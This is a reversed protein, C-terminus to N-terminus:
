PSCTAGTCHTLVTSCPVDGALKIASMSIPNVSPTINLTSGPPELQYLSNGFIYGTDTFDLTGALTSANTLTMGNLAATLTLGVYININLGSLITALTLGYAGDGESDIAGSCSTTGGAPSPCTDTTPVIGGWGSIISFTPFTVPGSVTPCVNTTTSGKTTLTKLVASPYTVTLSSASNTSLSCIDFQTNLTSGSKTVVMRLVFDITGDTLAGTLDPADITGPTTVRAIWTGTMDVCTGCDGDNNGTCGTPCCGDGSVCATITTNSCGSTATCVDTTCTKGDNCNQVTGTTCTGTQCTKPTWALGSCATGCDTGDAKTPNTCVGTSTNCTGATHCQDLATCVVPNSGTCTGSVCTDTQTCANGDNCSTGNSVNSHTCVANCSAASGTISDTTCANGDDACSTPCAGAQGAAIKSDCTESGSVCGDGCVSTKCDNDNCPTCGAPCCGDSTMSCTTIGTHACTATCTGANQLADTTCGNSDNCSTPCVGTGSTIATDCTEGTELIANGCCPTTTCCNAITTHTCVSNTCADTTCANSDNCDTASTCCNAITTHTCVSNTCADTTCANSDNCQTASTCCNTIAAVVCTAQCATGTLTSTHCVDSPTCSTPCAGTQGAAIATDCTEGTGVNGDGCTVTTTGTCEDLKPDTVPTKTSKLTTDLIVVSGGLLPITSPITLNLVQHISLGNGTFALNILGSLDLKVTADINLTLPIPPILKQVNPDVSKTETPITLKFTANRYILPRLYAIGGAEQGTPISTCLTGSAISGLKVSSGATAFSNVKVTAPAGLPMLLKNTDVTVTTNVNGVLNSQVTGGGFTAPLKITLTNTAAPDMVLLTPLNVKGCASLVLANMMVISLISIIKRPKRM